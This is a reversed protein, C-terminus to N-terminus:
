RDESLKAIAYATFEEEQEGFSVWVLSEDERFDAVLTGQIDDLVGESVVRQVWLGDKIETALGEPELYLARFFRELSNLEDDSAGVAMTYVTTDGCDWTSHFGLLDEVCRLGMEEDGLTIPTPEPDPMSGVLLNPGALLLAVIGVFAAWKPYTM